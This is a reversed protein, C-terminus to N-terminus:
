RKNKFQISVKDTIIGNNKQENHERYLALLKNQEKIANIKDTHRADKDEIIDSLLKLQKSMTIGLEESKNETKTNMYEEIKPIRLIRYFETSATEDTSGPYFKLYAQTGNFGNIFWEDIVLCYKKFTSDKM